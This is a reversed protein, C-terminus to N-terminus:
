MACGPVRPSSASCTAQKNGVESRTTAAPLGSLAQLSNHIYIYSVSGSLYQLFGNVQLDITNLLDGKSRLLQGIMDTRKAQKLGAEEQLRQLKLEDRLVKDKEEEVKEEEEEGKQKEEEGEVEEVREHGELLNMKSFFPEVFHQGFRDPHFPRRSRYIFSTIGFRAMHRTLNQRTTKNLTVVGLEVQFFNKLSKSSM